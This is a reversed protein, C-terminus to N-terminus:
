PLIENLPVRYKTFRRGRKDRYEGRPSAVMVTATKGVYTVIGTLRESQFLFSVQKGVTLGSQAAEAKRTPLNHRTGTHGFLGNALSLFRSSHGTEGYLGTEIAHCLEHEFVMLFAEQPTAASLGNLEFPGQILRTLFDGSMRIEACKLRRLPNRTYVFKGASSILRSSLSLKIESYTRSLYGGLFLADYREFMRRLTSERIGQIPISCFAPDIALLLALIEARKRRIEAECLPFAFPLINKKAIM